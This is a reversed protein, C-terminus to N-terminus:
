PIISQNINTRPQPQSLTLLPVNVDGELLRKEENVDGSPLIKEENVHLKEEPMKMNRLAIMCLMSLANFCACMVWVTRLQFHSLLVIVILIVKPLLMYNMITVRVENPYYLNRLLGFSTRFLGVCFEFLLIGILIAEFSHPFIPLLALAISSLLLVVIMYSQPRFHKVLLEFVFAGIMQCFWAMSFIVGLGLPLNDPSAYEVTPTWEILYIYISTEFLASSLGLIITRLDTRIVRFAIAFSALINVDRIGYNETWFEWIFFILSVFIVIAVNYPLTYGGYSKLFQAFVGCCIALFAPAMYTNRLIRQLSLMDLRRDRHEQFFWSEFVTHQIAHAVGWFLHGVFLIAIISYNFTICNVIHCIGGIFCVARRGFQDALSISLTGFVLSSVYFVVSLNEITSRSLNYSQLLAYRYAFPLNEGTTILVYAILYTWHLRKFVSSTISFINNTEKNCDERKTDDIEKM